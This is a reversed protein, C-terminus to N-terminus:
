PTSKLHKALATEAARLTQMVEQQNDFHSLVVYHAPAAVYKPTAEISVISGDARRTASWIAVEAPEKYRPGYCEEETTAGIPCALMEGLAFRYEVNLHNNEAMKWTGLFVSLGEPAFSFTKKKPDYDVYSYLLALKGNSYLGIIEAHGYIQVKATRLEQPSDDKLSQWKVTTSIFFRVEPPSANLHQLPLIAVCLLAVAIHLALKSRNM